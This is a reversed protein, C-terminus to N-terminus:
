NTRAEGRAQARAQAHFQSRTMRTVLGSASRYLSSIPVRLRHNGNVLIASDASVSQVTGVRRGRSDTVTAGARVDASTAVALDMNTRDITRNALRDTRDVTRDVTDRVSGVTNGVPVNVGVGVGTQGGVSVQAAAPMALLATGAVLLMRQVNM